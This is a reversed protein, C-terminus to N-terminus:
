MNQIVAKNLYHYILYIDLITPTKDVYTNNDNSFCFKRLGRLWM